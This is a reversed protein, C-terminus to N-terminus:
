SEVNELIPMLRKRRREFSGKSTSPSCVVNNTLYTGLSDDSSGCELDSDSIIDGELACQLDEIRQMALRLDQRVASTEAESSELRKELEQYRTNLDTERTIMLALEDKAERLSRSIKRVTEQAASEKMRLTTNESQLRETQERLRNIQTELRAKTTQELDLKSELEKNKFQLMKVTLSSSPDGLSEVRCNLEALQERLNARESELEAVRGAQEQQAAQEASLQGVVMRYKKLVEALEEENEELQSQLQGKERIAASLREEAETRSRVAEEMAATAEALDAEAAQRGKVAGSRACEADELQNRLQRVVSKSAGDNSSRNITSQADRLLVKTRHLDRKLRQVTEQHTAEATRLREESEGLRRDLEHRERLLGTREEHESELQCELSKAKKYANCRVEEIEDDKQSLERRYEKRLQEISMELRLKAQELIQVQGALDDLEEEQDALKSELQHKMKKLQAVDEETNGSFTLDELEQSLNAIKQDKLELELKLASFNQELTCKDGLTMEKERYARERNAKEQRLDDTLLQFEADFKRQKKELLNNRSNQEELLLRLDNTEATLKQVKRKWQSVVQRQEEVEEYADSLKKELQKKLAVLQELDQQHTQQLRRRTVELERLAQKYREQFTHEGGSTDVQDASGSCLLELELQESTEILRKKERQMEIVEKELRMRETTELELQNSSLAACSREEALDACVETLKTELKTNEQKLDTREQELKEVKSRLVELEETKERLEEETRHINLLPTIKVLLRWWPWNRVSLFKRVNRQICKVALEQVKRKVIKKRILYSRCYAQFHIIRSTLKEDRQAEIVALVGYRFFVQSLGIRYSASDLDLCELIKEVAQRQQSVSLVKNANTISHDSALLNFRRYFESLSMSKPFGLKHFRAVALLQSGRLQSRLLPVDILTDNENNHPLFCHVFKTRTRKLTDIIGDVAFKVQFSISKRKMAALTGTRQRIGDNGTLAFLQKIEQRNSDHLISVALRSIPIEQSYKSWGKVSYLVPNTGQCHRISFQHRTSGKGLLGQYDREDYVSFIKDVFTNDTSSSVASVEDLLSFLGPKRESQAVSSQVACDILSVVTESSCEEAEDLSPVEIQEQMYKERPAVLYTQHFLLQLREALYNHCLDFYGAGGERSQFGPSDVLLVSFVSNATSISRNIAAVVANVLEGYLGALLGDLQQNQLIYSLEDLSTGLLQAAWDANDTNRFHWRNGSVNKTAGASSLHLIAAIVSWIAKVEADSISLTTFMDCLCCFQQSLKQREEEDLIQNMQTLFPNDPPLYNLYLDRHLNGVSPAAALLQYFIHFSLEGDPVQITRWKDCIIINLTSSVIQGSYDFGVSFSHSLRSANNNLLTRANGFSELILWIANLKEATIVKNTFGSSLLLYHLTHRYNNTKGSASRGLFVISHDSRSSIASHYTSQAVAYIHAPMEEESKFGHFRKAVKESYILSVPAMPNIIGLCEGAYTHILNTAFRQRLTHLASTENIYRLLSLDDVRDLLSPNAKEIDDEDVYIDESSNEFSVVVKDTQPCRSVEKVASFGSSHAYWLKERESELWNREQAVEEESKAMKEKIRKRLTGTRINTEEEQTQSSYCRCLESLEPVPQVKVVVSSGSSKIMEIVEERSKDDVNVGNVQLLRDGPLLGQVSQSNTNASPEALIVSKLHYGGNPYRDVTVAQCLSFGFDNRPHPQRSIALERAPPLVLPTVDPLPLDRRIPSISFPPTTFSSDTLSDMSPSEAQVNQYIIMENHLTNRIVTDDNCMNASSPKVAQKLIGRKPPRPPPPQSQSGLSAESSDSQTLNSCDGLFSASYDATIGSPLKEKEKHRGRIKLSRRVEDLRLLEEATMNSREKKKLEKKEKKRKEKEEKEVANASKKMFSFM